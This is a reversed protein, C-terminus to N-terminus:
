TSLKSFDAIRFFLERIEWLMSLRNNRLEENEDMVLVSDFFKDVPEKLTRMISLSERYNKESMKVAAKERTEVYSRYLEMEEPEVFVSKRVEGRPQGKVINVVRKFAVGLSEFDPAKRFESLAEIRRKAEVVDDFEVSLAAEVVDQPFGDAIMIHRFREKIFGTIEAFIAEERDRFRADTQAIIAALAARFLAAISFHYNKELAINIIAIAQRRLAYPDSTGTPILGSAFCSSITDTKDAISLISGITSGPLASERSTPMYQEEIAAAVEEKEGSLLAYYRGMIGQLEPFEFVMQTALDAKSLEAARVIDPLKNEFGLEKGIHGAMLKIRETKDYYTGLDSLFVMGKLRGAKEALPGSRDENYFFRADSFRARIVRENGKIVVGDDSAKTGAVFIFHPLLVGDQSGSEVPFYKQHNKMVSILVEKPLDLFSEEFDGKLVVPYEVLYTVTDLLEEDIYATGGTKRAIDKIEKEIFVKREGQDLMVFGKELGGTYGEWSSVKFAGPGMFRHGFSKNSSKVNGIEFGVPKGGYVALIWRVPRAFVFDGNGWKMSKRFRLEGIIGPLIERLLKETKQGKIKKVAALFEGRDRKVTVLEDVKVGQSKAFGITASTPSGKEDFAIRLPPGYSEVSRDEQKDALGTVRLALRRPTGFSSIGGYSLANEKLSREAIESLSRIAENMFGAPIEETGIELILEKDM